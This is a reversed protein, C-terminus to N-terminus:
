PIASGDFYAAARDWADIGIQAGITRGEFDDVPVHIGGYLRSIGSDDSADYYTGWQLVIDGIPGDEFILFDDTSAVFEGIGGPFFPDGTIETLVEAASRSFTSHGSVYGAFSPTVFTERQYPLWDIARVWGAGAHGGEAAGDGAWAYIAIQGNNGALHEHRQGSATTAPTIIEILDAVLPLGSAHYSPDGMDTSQGLGGMYRISSIPRVYDYASKVEWAAIASDHVAGGLVFYTKVDWELDDVIPGVGGIRKTLDPHDAVTNAIVHWHGPPTESAPGDAWFEAIVRGWDGLRVNQAVYPLSTVPNLPHGSGDTTGLTNDGRAGPSIDIMAGDDPDLTASKEIVEVNATKFQADDAGALQPPLGPDAYLQGVGPRQIAFPTVDAWHPGIFTQINTPQAIGNQSVFFALSLPQWRNPDVMETGPLDVVLPENVSAYGSTDAYDNAENAGDTAGLGLWAAAIRNGVAAGSDGVTTTTATDYGLVAMTYDFYAQATGGAISQSFRQSLIRYAAFSVAEDRDTEPTGTTPSEFALYPDSVLQYAAWADYMAGGLHFLNRAHVTPRPSDLRIAELLAENWQRAVNADSGTPMSCSTDAIGNDVLDCQGQAGNAVGFAECLTCDNRAAVCSALTLSTEGSCDGPLATAIDGTICKAALKTTAKALANLVKSRPDAGYCLVMAVEAQIDGKRLGIKLCKNFEATRVKTLKAVSKVIAAQCDVVGDTSLEDAAAADLDPGFIAAVALGAEMADNAATASNAGFDALSACKKAEVKVTKSRARAIISRADAALCTSPTQGPELRGRVTDRLCGSLVKAVGNTVKAAARDLGTLCKQQPKTQQDGAAPAVSVALLVCALAASSLINFHRSM